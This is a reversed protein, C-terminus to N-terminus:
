KNFRWGPASNHIPRGIRARLINENLTLNALQSSTTDKNSKNPLMSSDINSYVLFRDASPIPPELSSVLVFIHDGGTHEVVKPDYTNKKNISYQDLNTNWNQTSLYERTELTTINYISM